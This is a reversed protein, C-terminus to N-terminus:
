KETTPEPDTAHARVDAIWNDILALLCDLRGATLESLPIEPRLGSLDRERDLRPIGLATLAGTLRGRDHQRHHPPMQCMTRVRVELAPPGGHPSAYLTLVGRWRSSTRGSDAEVTLSPYTRGTGGALRLHPGAAWGTVTRAIAAADDGCSAVANIVEDATWRETRRPQQERRVDHGPGAPAPRRLAPQLDRGGSRTGTAAPRRAATRGATTVTQRAPTRHPFSEPIEVIMFDDLRHFHLAIEMFRLQTAKIRDPGVKAEVFLAQGPERWAFM